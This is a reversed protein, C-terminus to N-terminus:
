FTERKLPDNEVVNKKKSIQTKQNIRNYTKEDIMPAKEFAQKSRLWKSAM